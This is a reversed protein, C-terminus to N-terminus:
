ERIRKWQYSMETGSVNLVEFINGRIGVTIPEEGPADFRFEKHTERSGDYEILTFHLLNSYYGDFIVVKLEMGPGYQREQGESFSVGDSEKVSRSWVSTMGNKQSNDVVWEKKGSGADVRVGVCDNAAVVSGLGPFDASRAHPPACFYRHKGRDFEQVLNTKEIGFNFPVGYAGPMSSSIGESMQLTKVVIAKGSVLIHDGTQVVLPKDIPPSFSFDKVDSPRRMPPATGCSALAFLVLGVLVPAFARLRPM